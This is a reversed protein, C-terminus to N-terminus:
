AAALDDLLAPSFVFGIDRHREVRRAGRDRSRVSNGDGGRQSNGVRGHVDVRRRDLLFQRRGLDVLCRRVFLHLSRERRLLTSRGRLTTATRIRRGGDTIAALQGEQLERERM